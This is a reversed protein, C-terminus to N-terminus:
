VPKKLVGASQWVVNLSTASTKNGYLNACDGNTNQHNCSLKVTSFEPSQLTMIGM